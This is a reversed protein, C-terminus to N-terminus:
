FIPDAWGTGDESSPWWKYGCLESFPLLKAYPVLFPVHAEGLFLHLSIIDQSSSSHLLDTAYFLSRIISKSEMHLSNQHPM